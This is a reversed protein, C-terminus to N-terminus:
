LSTGISPAFHTSLGTMGPWSDRAHEQAAALLQKDSNNQVNDLLAKATSQSAPKLHQFSHHLKPLNWFITLVNLPM